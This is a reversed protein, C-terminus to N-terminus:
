PLDYETVFKFEGRHERAIQELLKRGEQDLYAITFIRTRGGKNWDALKSPIAADFIGDSLFYILDPELDLARRLAQEPRTGGAPQVSDLFRFFDRRHGTIANVLARPPNEITEGSSFFIVHFKQSRRLSSVSRKLEERVHVFTETMSGSRDVVYVVSRVGRVSGGAGFFQPAAGGGASLGYKAMEGGEGGGAGIGIVALEPDKATTPRVIRDLVESNQSPDPIFKSSLPDAGSDTPIWESHRAANHPMADIEGVVQAEVVEPLQRNDPSFPFVLAFMVAIALAHLALSTVWAMVVRRGASGTLLPRQEGSLESSASRGGSVGPSAPSLPATGGPLASDLPAKVNSDQTIEAHTM